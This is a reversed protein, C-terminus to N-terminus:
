TKVSVDYWSGYRKLVEMTEECETPIHILSLHINTQDRLWILLYLIFVIELETLPM